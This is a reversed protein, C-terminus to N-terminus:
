GRFSLSVRLVPAPDLEVGNVKVVQTRGNSFTNFAKAFDFYITDVVGGAVITEICKDLYSLLQTTACRGSIFGYQRPSPLNESLVHSM